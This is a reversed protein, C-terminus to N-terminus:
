FGAFDQLGAECSTAFQLAQGASTALLNELLNLWVLWLDAGRPM